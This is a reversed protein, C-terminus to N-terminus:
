KNYGKRARILSVMLSYALNIGFSVMCLGLFVSLILYIFMGALNDMSIFKYLDLVFTSFTTLGGTLGVTIFSKVCKDLRTNARHYLYSAFGIVFCGIINVLFTPIYFTDFQSYIFYRLLAGLSGGIFVALLEM